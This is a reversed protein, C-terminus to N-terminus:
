TEGPYTNELIYFMPAEQERQFFNIIRVLDYFFTFGPDM